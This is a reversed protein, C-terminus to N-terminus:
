FGIFSQSIDNRNDIGMRGQSHNPVDIEVTTGSNEVTTFKITGNIGVMRENLIEL